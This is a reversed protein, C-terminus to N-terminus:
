NLINFITTKIISNDADSLDYSVCFNYSDNYTQQCFGIFESPYVFYKLFKLFMNYSMNEIYICKSKKLPKKTMISQCVTDNIMINKM